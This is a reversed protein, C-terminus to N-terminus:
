ASPRGFARECWRFGIAWLRSIAITGAARTVALLVDIMWSLNRAHGGLVQECCAAGESGLDSFPVIDVQRQIRGLPDELIQQSALADGELHFTNRSENSIATYHYIACAGAYARFEDM